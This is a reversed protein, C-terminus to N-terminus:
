FLLNHYSFLVLGFDVEECGYVWQYGCNLSKDLLLDKEM